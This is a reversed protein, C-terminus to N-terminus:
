QESDPGEPGKEKYEIVRLKMGQVELIAGPEIGSMNEPVYYVQFRGRFRDHTVEVKGDERAADFVQAPARSFQKATFTKM